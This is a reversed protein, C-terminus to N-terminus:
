RLGLRVFAEVSRLPGQASSAKTRKPGMFSVLLIRDPSVGSWGNSPRIAYAVRNHTLWCAETLARPSSRTYIM